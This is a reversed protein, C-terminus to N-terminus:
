IFRIMYKPRSLALHCDSAQKPPNHNKVSIKNLPVLDIVHLWIRVKVSFVVAPIACTLALPNFLVLSIILMAVGIKLHRDGPTNPIKPSEPRKEPENRSIHVM